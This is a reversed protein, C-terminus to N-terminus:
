KIREKLKTILLPLFYSLWIIDFVEGLYSVQKKFQPTPFFIHTSISVWKSVCM